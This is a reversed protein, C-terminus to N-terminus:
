KKKNIYFNATKDQRKVYISLMCLTVVSLIECIAMIGVTIAGFFNQNYADTLVSKLFLFIKMTTDDTCNHSEIYDVMNSFNKIIVMSSILFSGKLVIFFFAILRMGNSAIIDNDAEKRGFLVMSQKYVIFGPSILGIILLSLFSIIVYFLQVNALTNIPNNDEAIKNM